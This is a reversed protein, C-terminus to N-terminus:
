RRLANEFHREIAELIEEDTDRSRGLYPRTPIDGWPIPGGRRTRGFEGQKAGFQHTKGSPLNTGAVASAADFSSNVSGALRGTEQLIQGPWTGRERRRSKQIDSLDQWRKGDPARQEDFSEHASDELVAAIERMAPTLDAGTRVLRKLAKQLQRNDYEVTIM